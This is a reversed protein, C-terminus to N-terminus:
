LTERYEEIDALGGIIKLKKNEFDNASQILLFQRCSNKDQEVFIRHTGSRLPNKTADKVANRFSTKYCLKDYYFSVLFIGISNVYYFSKKNIYDLDYEIVSPERLLDIIKLERNIDEGLCLLNPQASVGESRRQKVQSMPIRKDTGRIFCVNKSEYELKEIESLLLGESDCSQGYLNFRVYLEKVYRSRLRQLGVYVKADLEENPKMDKKSAENKSTKLGLKDCIANALYFSSSPYSSFLKEASSLRELTKQPSGNTLEFLSIFQEALVKFIRDQHNPYASVVLELAGPKTLKLISIKDFAGLVNPDLGMYTKKIWKLENSNLTDSRTETDVTTKRQEYSLGTSCITFFLFIGPLAKPWFPLKIM